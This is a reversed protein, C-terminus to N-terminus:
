VKKVKQEYTVFGNLRDAVAVQLSAFVQGNLDEYDSRESEQSIFTWRIDSINHGDVTEEATYWIMIGHEDQNMDLVCSVEKYERFKRERLQAYAPNLSTPYDTTTM